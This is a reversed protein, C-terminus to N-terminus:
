EPIRVLMGARQNLHPINDARVTYLGTEPADFRAEYSETIISELITEDDFLVRVRAQTPEGRFDFVLHVEDEAQSYFTMSAGDDHVITSVTVDDQGDAALCGALLPLAVIGSSRAIFARRRM